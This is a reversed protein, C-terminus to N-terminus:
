RRGCISYGDNWGMMYDVNDRYRAQDKRPLLARASGCGDAYGQKFEASYGALNVERRPPDLGACGPVLAVAAAALVLRALGRIMTLEMGAGVRAVGKYQTDAELRTRAIDGLRLRMELLEIEIAEDGRFEAGIRKIRGHTLKNV